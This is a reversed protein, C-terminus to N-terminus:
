QVPLKDIHQHCHGFTSALLHYYGAWPLSIGVASPRAIMHAYLSQLTPFYLQEKIYYEFYEYLSQLTPFHSKEKISYEFYEYLSQLTPFYLKLINRSWFISYFKWSINTAPPIGTNPSALWSQATWGCCPEECCWAWLECAIEFLWKLSLDHYNPSNKDMAGQLVISLASPSYFHAHYLKAIFVFFLAM